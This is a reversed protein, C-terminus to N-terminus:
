WRPRGLETLYDRQTRLQDLINNIININIEISRLERGLRFTEETGIRYNTVIMLTSDKKDKSYTYVSDVVGNYANERSMYTAYNFADWTTHYSNQMNQLSDAYFNILVQISDALRLNEANIKEKEKKSPLDAYTSGQVHNEYYINSGAPYGGNPPSYHAPNQAVATTIVALFIITITYFKKM